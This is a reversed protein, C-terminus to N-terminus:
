AQAQHRVFIHDVHEDLRPNGANGGDEPKTTGAADVLRAGKSCGLQCWKPVYEPVPEEQDLSQGHPDGKYSGALFAEGRSTYPSHPSVPPQTRLGAKGSDYSLAHRVGDEFSIPTSSDM